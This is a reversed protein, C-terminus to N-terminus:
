KQTLIGTRCGFEECESLWYIEDRIFKVHKNPELKIKELIKGTWVM